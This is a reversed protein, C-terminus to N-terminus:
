LSIFTLSKPLIICINGQSYVPLSCTLPYQSIFTLKWDMRCFWYPTRSKCYSEYTMSQSPWTDVEVWCLEWHRENVLAASCFDTILIQGWKPQCPFWTSLWYFWWKQSSMCWNWFKNGFDFSFSGDSAEESIGNWLHPKDWHFNINQM